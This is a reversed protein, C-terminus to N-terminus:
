IGLEKLMSEAADQEARRRSSGKGQTVRNVGEARCEVSFIQAHDRGAVDVIEYSPLDMRNAQMYEQLRTKPDKLEITNSLTSMRDEFMSVIFKHCPEMGGDLYIAGVISEVADALISDRRSGGSKLEGSGLRLFDGLGLSRAVEALSEKRVLNARLRSLDGEPADPFGRFLQGAIVSGLIADGLFELRENNKSGASRHTLAAELLERDKFEYGMM